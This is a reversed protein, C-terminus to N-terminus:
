KNFVHNESIHYSTFFLFFNEKLEELIKVFSKARKKVLIQESEIEERFADTANGNAQIIKNRLAKYEKILREAVEQYVIFKNQYQEVEWMFEKDYYYKVLQDLNEKLINIQQKYFKIRNICLRQEFHLEDLKIKVQDSKIENM